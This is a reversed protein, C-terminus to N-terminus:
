HLEASSAPWSPNTLILAAIQRPHMRHQEILDYRDIFRQELLYGPKCQLYKAVSSLWRIVDPTPPYEDARVEAILAERNQRVFQRVNDTILKRPRLRLHEGSIEATLGARHLFDLAAM